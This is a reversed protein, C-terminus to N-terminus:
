ARKPGEADRGAMTRDRQPTSEVAPRDADRAQRARETEALAKREHEAKLSLKQEVIRLLALVVVALM